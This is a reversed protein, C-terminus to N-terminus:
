PEKEKEIEEAGTGNFVDLEVNDGVIINLVVAGVLTDDFDNFEVSDGVKSSFVAVGVLKSNEILGVLLKVEESEADKEVAGVINVDDFNESETSLESLESM